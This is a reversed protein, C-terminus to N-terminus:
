KDIISCWDRKELSEGEEVVSWTHLGAERGEHCTGNNVKVAEWGNQVRGEVGDAEM